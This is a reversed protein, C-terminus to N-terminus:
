LGELGIEDVALLGPLVAAIDEGISVPDLVARLFSIGSVDAAHDCYTGRGPNADVFVEM